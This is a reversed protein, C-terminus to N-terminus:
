SLDGRLQQPQCIDVPVANRTDLQCKFVPKLSDWAFFSEDFVQM